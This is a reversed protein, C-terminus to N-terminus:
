YNISMMILGRLRIVGLVSQHVIGHDVGTEYFIVAKGSLVLIWRRLLIQELAIGFKTRRRTQRRGKGMHPGGCELLEEWKRRMLKFQGINMNFTELGM